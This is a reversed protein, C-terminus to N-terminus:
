AAELGRLYGLENVIEGTLVDELDALARAVTVADRVRPDYRLCVDMSGDRSLPGYSLAMTWVSLPMADLAGWGALSSVGFTGLTEAHRVGSTNKVFWWGAQRIPVPL